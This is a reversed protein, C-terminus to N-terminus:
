VQVRPTAKAATEIKGFVAEWGSNDVTDLTDRATSSLEDRLKDTLCSSLDNGSPNAPDEITLTDMDDAFAELVRRFRDELNGATNGNLVEIVLLEL